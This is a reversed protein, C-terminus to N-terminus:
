MRSSPTPPPLTELVERTLDIVIPLLKAVKKAIPSSAVGAQARQAVGQVIVCNKFFLFALYFGSWDLMDKLSSSPSSLGYYLHLIEQRTPINLAAHDLGAIGRIGAAHTPMFYMMCLNAVDAWPDGLTSLEWDLIAVIRPETPHFIVNDVKFDGHVLCTPPSPCHRTFAQLEKALQQIATSYETQELSGALQGQKQSVATLRKLQREVYRSKGVDVKGFDHLGIARYDVQHLRRLTKVIEQYAQRREHPTLAPMAPDTFIRGAVYEMIYFEAGIVQTDQCYAYVRPVPIDDANSLAQLVRFERDLAHATKHAVTKPRKRLVLKHADITLLYTPNSQGYGFQDLQLSQALAQPSSLSSLINQPLLSSQAWLWEALNEVNLAERVNHRQRKTKRKKLSMTVINSMITAM